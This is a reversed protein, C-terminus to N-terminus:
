LTMVKYAHSCKVLLAKNKKFHRFSTVVSFYKYRLYLVGLFYVTSKQIKPPWLSLMLAKLAEIEYKYTYTQIFYLLCMWFWLLPSVFINLKTSKHTQVKETGCEAKHFLSLFYPSFQLGHGYGSCQYKGM